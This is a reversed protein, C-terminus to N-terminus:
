PGEVRRLADDLFREFSALRFANGGLYCHCHQGLAAALHVYFYPSDGLTSMQGDRAGAVWASRTGSQDAYWHMLSDSLLLILHTDPSSFLIDALGAGSIGAVVLADRFMRVQEDLSCGEMVVVEFGRARFLAEVELENSVWQRQPGADRRSVYIRRTRRPPASAGAALLRHLGLLASLPRGGARGDSEFLVVRGGAVPSGDWAVMQDPRIGALELTARHFSRLPAPLLYVSPFAAASLAVVQPVYDLLWHGFNRLKRRSFDYTFKPVAVTDFRTAVDGATAMSVRLAGSSDLRVVAGPVDLVTSAAGRLGEDKGLPSSRGLTEWFSQVQPDETASTFVGRRAALAVDVEEGVVTRRVLLRREAPGELVLSDTGLRACPLGALRAREAADRAQGSLRHKTRRLETRVRAHLRSIHQRLRAVDGRLAQAKGSEPVTRQTM